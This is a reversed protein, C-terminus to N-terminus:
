PISQSGPKIRSLAEEELLKIVCPGRWRAKIKSLLLDLAAYKMSECLESYDLLPLLYEGHQTVRMVDQAVLARCLTTRNDPFSLHPISPILSDDILTCFSHTEILVQHTLTILDEVIYSTYPTHFHESIDVIFEEHATMIIESPQVNKGESIAELPIVFACNDPDRMGVDYLWLIDQIIISAEAHTRVLIGVGYGMPEIEEYSYMLDQGSEYYGPTEVIWQSHSFLPKWSDFPLTMGSLGTGYIAWLELQREPSIRASLFNANAKLMAIAPVFIGYSQIGLGQPNLLAPPEVFTVTSIESPPDAEHLAFQGALITSRLAYLATSHISTDARSIGMRDRLIEAEAHDSNESFKIVYRSPPFECYSMISGKLLKSPQQWNILSRFPTDRNQDIFHYSAPRNL